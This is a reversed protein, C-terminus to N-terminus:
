FKVSSRKVYKKIDSNTEEWLIKNTEINTLNATVFYSRVLQGGAQDTISKVSGQLILNAGTENGLQAITDDSANGQQQDLREERIGERASGSEVFDLGGNKIISSRMTTAIISTDIHESSSNAFKGVIVTPNESNHNLRFNIIYRNINADLLAANILVDCVQRVDTDNWNGSLDIATFSNVRSVEPVSSCMSLLVVVGVIGLVRCLVSSTVFDTIKYSAKTRGRGKSQSLATKLPLKELIDSKPFVAILLNNNRM